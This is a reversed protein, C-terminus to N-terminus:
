SVVSKVAYGASNFNGAVLAKFHDFDVARFGREFKVKSANVPICEFNIPDLYISIM